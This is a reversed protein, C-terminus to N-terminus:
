VGPEAPHPRPREHVMLLLGASLLGALLAGLLLLLGAGSWAARACMRGLGAGAAFLGTWALAAWLPTPLGRESPADALVLVVMWAGPAVAGFRVLDHGRAGFFFGTPAAIFAIWTLLALPDSAGTRSPLAGLAGIGALVLALGLAAVDNARQAPTVV